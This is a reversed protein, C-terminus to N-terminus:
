ASGRVLVSEVKKLLFHASCDRKDLFLTAGAALGRDRETGKASILVIPIGRTEQRGRLESTLWVGDAEGLLVDVLVVDYASHKLLSLAQDATSAATVRYGGSELATRYMARATISDDVVLARRREDAPARRPAVSQGVIWGPSLVLVLEGLALAAAGQYAPVAQVERPMPRVVLDLNGVVADVAVALREGKQRLIVIPQGRQWTARQRLGLLVGLDCLPLVDPGLQLRADARSGALVHDERLAIGSEAALMPLGFVQDAVRLLLVQSSGLEIPLTLVFRTGQGAVSEIDITGRLDDVAGQVVDLGVGRGSTESVDSRTSFGPRFLVRALAAPGLRAAEDASMLGRDVAVQRVRDFDVGNGDDEVTLFLTNGVQEARVVVSGERHKGRGERTEPAEIGHAICNRILQVVPGRLAELVRRDITLEDGVVSLRAERGTQRCLDRVARHLPELLTRIPLSSISRLGQELSAITDAAEEADARLGRSVSRVQHPAPSSRDRRSEAALVAAVEDLEARRRDVRFRLERVREVDRLLSVVQGSDVRWADAARAKAETPQMPQAIGTARSSPAAGPGGRSASELQAVVEDLSFSPPVEGTEGALRVGVLFADLAALLADAVSGQVPAKRRAVDALLDEARHALNSLSALGLTGASGKLAHLSRAVAEYAKSDHADEPAREMELIARTANECHGQAEGSFDRIIPLMAASLSV